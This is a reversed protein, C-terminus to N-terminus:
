KFRRLLDKYNRDVALWDGIDDIKSTWAIIFQFQCQEGKKMNNISMSFGEDLHEAFQYLDTPKLRLPMFENKEARYGVYERDETGITLNVCGDTFTQADLGEGNHPGGDTWTYGDQWKCSYICSDLDKLANVRWIAAWTDDVRYDLKMPIDPRFLLLEAEFETLHWRFLFVDQDASCVSTKLDFMNQRDIVADFVITGLPTSIVPSNMDKREDILSINFLTM